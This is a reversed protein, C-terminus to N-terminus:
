HHPLPPVEVDGLLESQIVVPFGLQALSHFKRSRKMGSPAAVVENVRSSGDARQRGECDSARSPVVPHDVSRATAANRNHVCASARDHDMLVMVISVDPSPGASCEFTRLSHEVECEYTIRTTEESWTVCRM